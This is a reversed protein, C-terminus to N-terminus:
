ATERFEADPNKRLTHLFGRVNEVTHASARRAAIAESLYGLATIARANLHAATFERVIQWALAEAEIFAGRSLHAEIIHLGCFGAEEVVNQQLFQQRIRHLHAIGDEVQGRGIMMRGGAIESRSVDLARGLQTYIRIAEALHAEAAAFDNLSISAHGINNHIVALSYRDGIAEIEPLLKLWGARAEGSRHQHYLLAAEAVACLLQRREDGLRRFVPKCAALLSAAEDYRGADDLTIARTLQVVARDHELTEFPALIAEAKELAALAEEFRALYRLPLARHRWAHARMRAVAAAEYDGPSLTDAVSTALDALALAELPVHDVRSVVAENLQELAEPSRLKVAELAAEREVRELDPRLLPVDRMIAAATQWARLADATKGAARLATGRASWARVRLFTRALEVGSPTTVADAHRTVLETLALAYPTNTELDRDAEDLLFHFAHVSRAAPHAVLWENWDSPPQELLQSVLNAAEERGDSLFEVFRRMREARAAQM